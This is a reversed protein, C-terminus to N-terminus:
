EDASIGEKKIHQVIDAVYAVTKLEQELENCERSFYKTVTLIDDDECTVLQRQTTIKNDEEIYETIVEFIKM